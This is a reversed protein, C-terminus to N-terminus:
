NKGLTIATARRRKNGKRIESLDSEIESEKGVSLIALSKGLGGVGAQSQFTGVGKARRRGNSGM